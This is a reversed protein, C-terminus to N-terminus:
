IFTYFGLKRKVYIVCGVNLFVNTILSSIAAGDVGYEPILFYNLIVNTLFSIFVINRLVKQNDTMNLIQDVTGVMASFLIGLIIWILAQEGIIFEEGFFSLIDRRFFVISIVLPITLVSILRTSQVITKHLSELEKKHYLEAIKPAIVINIVTIILYALSAIKFAANYIGVEKSSKMGELMFVDVWGLLYLFLGTFMMPFSKELLEKSSSKELSKKKKVIKLYLVLEIFFVVGISLVYCMFIFSEGFFFGKLLFFFIFFLIPPFIFLSLNHKTFNKTGRFFALFIEHFMLPIIFYSLIKLYKIYDTDNFIYISIDSASYYLGISVILGSLFTIRHTHTLFNTKPTIDFHKTDSLMKVIMIPLGLTFLLTIIQSLTVMLSYRGYVEAGFTRTVFLMVLYSLLLGIIKIGFTASGSFVIEKIHGKLFFNM